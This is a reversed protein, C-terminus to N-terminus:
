PGTPAPPAIPQLMPPSEPQTTPAAAAQSLAKAFDRVIPDPDSTLRAILAPAKDGLVPAALASWLRTMWDSDRSMADIVNAQGAGSSTFARLYRAWARVAPKKDNQAKRIAEAFDDAITKQNADDSKRLIVVYTGMVELTRIRVGGDDAELRDALSARAEPTGIPTPSRELMRTLQVHLGCPGVVAQEPQKPGASTVGAPNTLIAMNVTLDLAPNQGFLSFLTDQDVRMTTGFSQGAELVLRQDIRGVAVGTLPEEVEGRLYADFWL